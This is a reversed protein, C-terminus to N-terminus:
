VWQSDFATVHDMNVIYSRHICQLSPIDTRRRFQSLNQALSYSESTTAMKLYSGEAKLYVIDPVAVKVYREKM